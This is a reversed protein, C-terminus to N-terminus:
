MNELIWLYAPTSFEFEISGNCGAPGHFSDSIEPSSGNFSHRYVAKQYVIQDMEIGDIEFNNINVLSDSLIEGAENVKTHASTKNKVVIKVCHQQEVEDEFAHSIQQSQNIAQYDAVKQNNVWVEAGIPNSPNSPVIDFTLQSTNM